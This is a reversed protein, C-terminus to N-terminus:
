LRKGIFQFSIEKKIKILSSVAGHKNSIRGISGHILLAWQSDRNRTRFRVDQPKYSKRAFMHNRKNWARCAGGQGSLHYALSYNHINRPIERFYKVKIHLLTPHTHLRPHNPIVE